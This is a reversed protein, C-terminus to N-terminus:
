RNGKATDAKPQPKNQGGGSMAGMMENIDGWSLFGWHDSAKGDKMKLLEVITDDVKLGVPMGWPNQKSTGTMRVTAYHYQGDTSTAHHLM